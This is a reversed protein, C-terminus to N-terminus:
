FCLLTLKFKLALVLRWRCFRAGYSDAALIGMRKTKQILMEACELARQKGENSITHTTVVRGYALLILQISQAIANDDYINGTTREDIMRQLIEEAKQTQGVLVYCFLAASWNALSPRVGDHKMTGIIEEVKEIAGKGSWFRLLVNYSVTGLTLKQRRMEELIGEMRQSAEPLKSEAWANLIMNYSYSSPMLHLNNMKTAEAKIFKLMSEAVFPAKKRDAQKIVVHMIMSITKINYRFGQVLTSMTQLKKIVDRASITHGHYLVAEKWKNFLPNFYRPNCLWTSQNDDKSFAMEKVLRELLDLSANVAEADTADRRKLFEDLVCKATRYTEPTFSGLPYSREDLLRRAKATTGAFQKQNSSFSEYRLSFGKPGRLVDSSDRSGRLLADSIQGARTSCCNVCQSSNLGTPFRFTSL